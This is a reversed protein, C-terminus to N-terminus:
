VAYGKVARHVAQLVYEIDEDSMGHFMPLSIIRQYVREAVPCEGVKHGLYKRYYPHLHVPIYHVNAGIGAARLASFLIDRNITFDGHGIRVVYLHYAHHVDPTVELPEVGPM